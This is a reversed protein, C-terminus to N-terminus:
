ASVQDEVAGEAGSEPGSLLEARAVELSGFDLLNDVLGLKVVETSEEKSVTDLRGLDEGLM